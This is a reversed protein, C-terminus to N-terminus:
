QLGLRSLVVTIVIIGFVIATVVVYKSDHDVAFAYISFLVRIVPTLILLLTALMLISTPDAHLLGHFFVGLHYAQRIWQSTLVIRQHRVLAMVVGAAFLLSSVAMGGLLVDYVGAYVNEESIQENQPQIVPRDTSM